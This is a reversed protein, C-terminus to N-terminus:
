AAEKDLYYGGCGLKLEAFLFTKDAGFKNIVDECNAIRFVKEWAMVVAYLKSPAKVKCVVKDSKKVLWTKM